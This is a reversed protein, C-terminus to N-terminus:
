IAIALAACGIVVIADYNIGGSVSPETSIFADNVPWERKFRMEVVM